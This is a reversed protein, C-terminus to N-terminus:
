AAGEERGYRSTRWGFRRELENVPEGRAAWRRTIEDREAKTTPLNEGALVREVVAHDIDYRSRQDRGVLPTPDTDIDDWALPPPWGAAEAKARTRARYQNMEPLRMSLREYVDRITADTARELWRTPKGKQGKLIRRVYNDHDRGWGAEEAIDTAMWGLRMLAQIRRQAGLAPIARGGRLRDLRRKKEYRAHARRCCVERCGAHFGRTTGHRPDDPTM